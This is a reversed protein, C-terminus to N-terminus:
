GCDACVFLDNEATSLDEKKFSEKDQGFFDSRSVNVPLKAKESAAWISSAITAIPFLPSPFLPPHYTAATPWLLLVRWLRSDSPTAFFISPSWGPVDCLSLIDPSMFIIGIDPSVAPWWGISSITILNVNCQQPPSLKQHLMESNALCMCLYLLLSPFPNYILCQMLSKWVLVNTKFIWFNKFWINSIKQGKGQWWFMNVSPLPHLNSFLWWGFNM